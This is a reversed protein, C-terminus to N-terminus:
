RNLRDNFKEKVAIGYMRGSLSRTLLLSVNNLYIFGFIRAVKSVHMGEYDHPAVRVPFEPRPGVAFRRHM